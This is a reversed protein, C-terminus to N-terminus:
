LNISDYVFEMLLQILLLAYVCIKLQIILIIKMAYVDKVKHMLKDLVVKLLHVPFVYNRMQFIPTVLVNVFMQKSTSSM